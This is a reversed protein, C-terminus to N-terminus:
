THPFHLEDEAKVLLYRSTEVEECWPEWSKNWVMNFKIVLSTCFLASGDFCNFKGAMIDNLFKYEM